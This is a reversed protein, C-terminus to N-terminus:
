TVQIYIDGNNGTGSSPASSGTYITAFALTGTVQAGSADHATYGSALNGATVTDGSIDILTTGDYIVKNISM